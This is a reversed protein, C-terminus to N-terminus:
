VVSTQLREEQTIQPLKLCLKCSADPDTVAFYPVSNLNHESQRIALSNQRTFGTEKYDVFVSFNRSSNIVRVYSLVATSYIACMLKQLLSNEFRQGTFIVTRSRYMQLNKNFWLSDTGSVQCLSVFGDPRKVM